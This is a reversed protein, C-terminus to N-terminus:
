SITKYRKINAERAMSALGCYGGTIGRNRGTAFECFM